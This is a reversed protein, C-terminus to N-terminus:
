GVGRRARTCRPHGLKRSAVVLEETLTMQDILNDLGDSLSALLEFGLDVYLLEAQLSILDQLAQLFAQFIVSRTILPRVELSM